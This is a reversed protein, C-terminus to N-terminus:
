QQIILALVSGALTNNRVYLVSANSWTYKPGEYLGQYFICGSGDSPNLSAYAECSCNTRCIEKCDSLGLSSNPLYLYPKMLQRTEKFVDGDICKSPKPMVCGTSVTDGQDPNCNVVAKDCSSYHCLYLVGSSDLRFWINSQYFSNYTFYSENENSFYSFNLSFNGLDYSLDHESLLNFNYGNWFGSSWYVVGRKWVVLQKTNNQNEDIGLTFDGTDPDELSSWSTLFRHQPKGSKLDFLGLKMGQLWVNSPHDFSQWLINGGSSRLVFNGSDDLRASMNNISPMGLYKESNLTISIGRSDNIMLTGEQTIKLVGSSDTLPNAANAVWVVEYTENPYYFEQALIGLYRNTSGSPSSFFGLQFQVNSSELHEWDKMEQGVGLTDALSSVGLPFFLWCSVVLWHLVVSCRKMTRTSHEIWTFRFHLVKTEM